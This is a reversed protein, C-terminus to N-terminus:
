FAAGGTNGASCIQRKKIRIQDLSSPRRTGASPRPRSMRQVHHVFFSNTSTRSSGYHTDDRAGKGSARKALHGVYALSHPAIGGFVEIIM